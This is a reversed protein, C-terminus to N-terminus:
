REDHSVNSTGRGKVQEGESSQGITGEVASGIIPLELRIRQRGSKNIPGLNEYIELQQDEHNVNSAVPITAVLRFQATHLVGQLMQMNKLDDWFNPQNVVYKVGYHNLMDATEAATVHLEEVGLARRQAVKLLLKDSRLVSLDRRDKRSRMDFVFAGDRYGSFLVVSNRPARQAVYDVAERYGHMAPVEKKLLTHGLAAGAFVVAVASAARVPLVSAIGRVAFFALPLLIVVTHRPEKLAILSFFLYGVALWSAFFKEGPGWWRPRVICALVGGAALVVVPWSTQSPFQRIYFFWGEWSFVPVETWQGGVVSGLNLRALTFNLVTLPLVLVTLLAAGGWVHRDKLVARGKARWLMWVFIPLIFLVTQKTYVGGALLLMV